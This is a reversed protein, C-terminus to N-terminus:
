RRGVRRGPRGRRRSHAPRSRGAGPRTRLGGDGGSAGHRGWRGPRVQGQHASGMVPRDVLAAPPQGAVRVAAQGGAWGVSSVGGVSSMRGAAQGAPLRWDVSARSGPRPPRRGALHTCPARLGRAGHRAVHMPGVGAALWGRHRAVGHPRPSGSCAQGCSGIWEERWRTRREPPSRPAGIVRTHRNPPSRPRRGPRQRRRGPQPRHMRRRRPLQRGVLPPPRELGLPVPVPREPVHDAPPQDQAAAVPDVHGPPERLQGPQGPREPVM